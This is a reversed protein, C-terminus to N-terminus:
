LQMLFSFVYFHIGHPVKIQAKTISKCGKVASSVRSPKIRLNGSMVPSKLEFDNARIGTEEGSIKQPSIFLPPFLSNEKRHTKFILIQHLYHFERFIYLL